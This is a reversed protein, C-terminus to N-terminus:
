VAALSRDANCTSTSHIPLCALGRPQAWGYGLDWTGNKWFGGELFVWFNYGRIKDISSDSAITKAQSTASSRPALFRRDSRTCRSSDGFIGQVRGGALSGPFMIQAQFLAQRTPKSRGWSVTGNGHRVVQPETTSRAQVERIM